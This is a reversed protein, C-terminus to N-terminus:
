FIYCQYDSFPLTNTVNLSHKNISISSIWLNFNTVKIYKDM